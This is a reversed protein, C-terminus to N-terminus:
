RSPSFGKSVKPICLVLTNVFTSVGVQAKAPFVITNEKLAASSLKRWPEETASSEETDGLMPPGADDQGQAM